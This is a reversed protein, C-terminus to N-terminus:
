ARKTVPVPVEYHEFSSFGAAALLEEDLWLRGTPAREPAQVVLAHCADAVIAPSRWLGMPDFWEAFVRTAQTDILTRPWLGNVAIRAGSLEEALGLTLHSMGFKTMLYATRGAWTEIGLAGLGLPPCLNVIHGGGAAKLHPIAARALLLPARFNIAIMRDVYRTAIDAVPQWQIAGANNVVVDLRGLGTVAREVLRAVHNENRVDTPEAVARRGLAEIERATEHITGPRQETAETTKAGIAVDMGARALRLAIAKGIGRSAGTVLAVKGTLDQTM